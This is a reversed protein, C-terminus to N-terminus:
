VNVDSWNGKFIIYNIKRNELDKITENYLNIYSPGKEQDTSLDDIFLDCGNNSLFEPKDKSKKVVNISEYKIGKLDLWDKTINYADVFNRATLFHIEYEESLKTLKEIVGPLVEDKMIEDRSLAKEWNCIGNNSWRHIREWHNNITSDIDCYLKKRQKKNNMTKELYKNCKTSVYNKVFDKIYKKM